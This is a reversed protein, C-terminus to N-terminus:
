RVGADLSGPGGAPHPACRSPIGVRAVGAAFGHSLPKAPDRGLWWGMPGAPQRTQQSQQEGQSHGEREEMVAGGSRAISPCGQFGAFPVLRRGHLRLRHPAAIEVPAQLGNGWLQGGCRADAQPHM